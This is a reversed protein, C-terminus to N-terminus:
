ATTVGTQRVVASQHDRWLDDLAVDDDDDDNNVDHGSSEADDAVPVVKVQGRGAAAAGCIGAAERGTAAACDPARPWAWVCVRVDLVTCGLLCVCVCLGSVHQACVYVYIYVCIGGRSRV